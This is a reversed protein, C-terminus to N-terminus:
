NNREFLVVEGGSLEKGLKKRYNNEEKKLKEKKLAGKLSFYAWFFSLTFLLIIGLVIYM